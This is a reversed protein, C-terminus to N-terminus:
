FLIAKNKLWKEINLTIFTRKTKLKINRMSSNKQRKRMGFIIKLHYTTVPYYRCIPSLLIQRFSYNFIECISPASSCFYIQHVSGDIAKKSLRRLTGVGALVWEILPSFDRTKFNVNKLKFIITLLARSNIKFNVSVRWLYRSVQWALWGKQASKKQVPCCYSQLPENLKM